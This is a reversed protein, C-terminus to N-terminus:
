EPTIHPPTVLPNAPLFNDAEMFLNPFFFVILCFLTALVCFGFTDKVSYYWHFPLRESKSTVGLPNSSGYLHLFNLHVLVLASLLFPTVFHFTFFRTLTSNDICFGGWIWTVLDPGIYPLASFLNTIM